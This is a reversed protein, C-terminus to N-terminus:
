WRTQLALQGEIGSYDHKGWEGQIRMALSTRPGLQAQLGATAEYRDKPVGGQLETPGMDLVPTGAGHWWDLQFYPRVVGAEGHDRLRVGVRTLTDNEDEWAVQTGNRERVDDSDYKSFVVQAQPEVAWRPNLPIAYGFEGSVAWADADYEEPLLTDGRVTNDFQGAQAWTDLYAGLGEPGHAFWTAYAGFIAGETEARAHAPNGVVDVDVESRSYGLMGGLHVDGVQLIDSGLQFLSRGGRADIRGDLAQAQLNEGAVRVWTSRWPDSSSPRDYLQHTLTNTAAVRNGIYGGIEPRWLPGQEPAAGESRLYWNGDAPDTVGGQFLLYEYAGSVVRQSLTFAGPDSQAPDAVQVLPIGDGVTAAGTGGLSHVVIGTPGGRLEAAGVQFVDAQPVTGDDLVAELHLTGGDAFYTGLVSIASTAVGDVMTVMGHNSLNGDITFPQASMPQAALAALAGGNALTGGNDVDGVVSGSGGFFAGADVTVPSTLQAGAGLGLTGQMVHTGAVNANAELMLAGAGTKTLLGAGDIPGLWTTNGLVDFTAGNANVTVARQSDLDARLQLTGGDFVLIGDVAGLNADSDVSLVGADLFTGGAHTNNGTLMTTGTGAQRVAGAGSIAGAFTMVDTRDFVLEGENAVDGSLTGGDAIRLTGAEITTGGSHTNSGTLTVTNDGRKVLVGTGSTTNAFTLDGLHHLVLAGNNVIDGVVSGQASTGDGLQLAGASITTGGSFTNDQTLVLTGGDTKTIHAPGNAGDAIVANITATGANVRIMTSPEARLAFGDGEVRYGDTVFQVGAVDIDEGLTVTGATSQFVAFSGRWDTNIAGDQTTWRTATNDWVGDGGQVTGNPTDNTGDWFQLTFNEDVVILNIQGSISTQLQLTAPDVGDPLTGFVLGNDTLTGGYDFLRYIGPALGATTSMAGFGGLDAINLTGDLILNNDVIILDNMGGVVGPTGLDYDLFSGSSLSLNSVRLTGATGGIGAGVHGGSAVTVNGGFTGPGGFTAGVAVTLAGTLTSNDGDVLLTGESVTIPVTGTLGGDLTWTGTHVKILSEFGSIAGGVANSLVGSGTGALILSDTGAGASLDGTLLSGTYLYAFDSAASFIVDGDVSGGAHNRFDVSANANTSESKIAAGAGSDAVITGFNDITASGESSNGMAIVGRLAPSELHGENRIAVAQGALPMFYIASGADSTIEGTRGVNISGPAARITVVEYAGTNRVEGDVNVTQASSLEMYIAFFNNIDIIAGQEVNVTAGAGRSTEISTTWPNPPQSNCTTISNATTCAAWAAPAGLLGGAVLMARIGLALASRNLAGSPHRM